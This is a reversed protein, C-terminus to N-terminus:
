PVDAGGVRGGIKAVLEDAAEFRKLLANLEILEQVDEKTLQFWLQEDRADTDLFAIAVPVAVGKQEGEGIRVDLVSEFGDFSPLVANVLSRRSM